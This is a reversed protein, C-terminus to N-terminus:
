TTDRVVIAPVDISDFISRLTTGVIRDRLSPETEGLIVLDYGDALDVIAAQPNGSESLEWRLRDRDIGEDALRDVVGRLIFEGRSPDADNGVSHFLTISAGSTRELDAVLSVIRDLNVDGRLPVLIREIPRTEGTILVADCDHQEAVRDISDQRNKTFVLVDEVEHDTDDFRAVIEKLRAAAEAEHDEKLHAPATQRPVTYYGLVVVDVPRLHELIGSEPPDVDSVDVPVLITSDGTLPM